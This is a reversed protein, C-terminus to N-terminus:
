NKFCDKEAKIFDTTVAAEVTIIFLLGGDANRLLIIYSGCSYYYHLDVTKSKQERMNTYLNRNFRHINYIPKKEYIM